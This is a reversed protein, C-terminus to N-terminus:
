GHPRVRKAMAALAEERKQRFFLRHVEADVVVRKGLRYTPVPFNGARVATMASARTTYGYEAAVEAVTFWGRDGSKAVDSDSKTDM